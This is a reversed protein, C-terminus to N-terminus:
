NNISSVVEEDSDNEEIIPIHNNLLEKIDENFGDDEKLARKHFNKKIFSSLGCFNLEILELYITFGIISFINMFLGLIFKIQINEIANEKYFTGNKILTYIPLIIKPIIKTFSYSFVEHVPSLYRIIYVLSYKYVIYVSVGLIITIIEFLIEINSYNKNNIEGKLEKFYIPISDLYYKASNNYVDEYYKIKCVNVKFAEPCEIFTGMICLISYYITGIFGYIVLIEHPTIYKYDMFVKLKVNVYSSVCILILYIIIGIPITWKHELYFVGNSNKDFISLIILFIKIICFFASMYIAIKHHIYIEQSFIKHSFYCVIVLEIMWLEFDMINARYENILPEEIVWLLIVILVSSCSIKSTNPLMTLRQDININVDKVFISLVFTENKKIYIIYSVIFIGLFRCFGHILRHKSLINQTDTQILKLTLFSDRYNIGNFIYYRLFYCIVASLIYFYRRNLKGCSILSM